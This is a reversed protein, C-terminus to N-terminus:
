PCKGDHTVFFVDILLIDIESPPNHEVSNELSKMLTSKQTKCIGGDFHRLSLPVPTIPYSLIKAMDVKYDISIGLLRGFLDRQIRVEQVKGGVKTKRKKSYDLTFNELPTKKISKEFRSIDVECESIFTKLIDKPIEADFPNIFLDFTEIFKQLQKANTKITHNTLGGTNDQEKQM